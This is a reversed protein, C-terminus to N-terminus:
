GFSTGCGCTNHANPNNMKFGIDNLTEVYDIKMGKILHVSEKDVFVKFGNQDVELDAKEGKKVLDFGYQLGACGGPMIIIRLGSDKNGQKEALSMFKNIASQTLTVIKDEFVQEM